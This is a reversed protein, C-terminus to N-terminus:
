EKDRNCHRATRQAAAAVVLADTQGHKQKNCRRGDHIPPPVARRFTAVAVLGSPNAVAAIPSVMVVIARSMAIISIESIRAVTRVFVAPSVLRRVRGTGRASRAGRATALVARLPSELVLVPLSAALIAISPIKLVFVLFIVALLAISPEVRLAAPLRALGTRVPLKLVLFGLRLAFITPCSLVLVFFHLRRAFVARLPRYLQM